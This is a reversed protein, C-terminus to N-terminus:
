SALAAGVRRGIWEIAESASQPVVHSLGAFGHIMGAFCHSEVQAGAERLRDAFALGEDRLPDFEATLVSAPPFDGLDAEFVNVLPDSHEGGYCHWAWDIFEGTLMYDDAMMRASISLRNPDLLPYVLALHRLKTQDGVRSVLAAALQGGASDGAVAVRAADIGLVEATESVWGLAAVADDLAAPYPHEPALRYDVVAVVAQASLALSRAM